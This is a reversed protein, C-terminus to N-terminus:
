DNTKSLQDLEAKVDYHPQTAGSIYSSGTHSYWGRVNRIEDVDNALVEISKFSQKTNSSVSEGLKIVTDRLIDMRHSMLKADEKLVYRQKEELLNAIDLNISKLKPDFDYCLDRTKTIYTALSALTWWLTPAQFDEHMDDVRSGLLTQIGDVKTVVTALESSSTDYSAILKLLTHSVDYLGEDIPRVFDLSLTTNDELKVTSSVGTIQRKYPTLDFYNLRSKSVSGTRLPTQHKNAQGIYFEEVDVKANTAKEDEVKNIIAMKTTWDSLRYKASKLEAYYDDSLKTKPVSPEIFATGNPKMVYLQNPLIFAKKLRHARVDCNEKLCFASGQGVVGKCIASFAHGESPMCVVEYTSKPTTTRFQALPPTTNSSWTLRGVFVTDDFATGGSSYHDASVGPADRAYSAEFDGYDDVSDTDIPALLTGPTTLLGTNPPVHLSDTLVGRGRVRESPAGLLTAETTSLLAINDVLSALRADPDTSM